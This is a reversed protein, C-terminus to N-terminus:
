RLGPLGATAPRRKRHRRYRLTPGGTPVHDVASSGASLDRTLTPGGNDRLVGLQPDGSLDTGAPTTFCSGNYLNYGQSTVGSCQNAGGGALISAKVKAAGAATNANFINLGSNALTSFSVSVTGAAANHIGSGNAANTVANQTLTSDAVTLKGNNYIAGGATTAQNDFLTVGLLTLEGNNLIGGGQSANGHRINLWGITVSIGSSVTIVSGPDDTPPQLIGM